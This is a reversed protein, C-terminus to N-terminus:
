VSDPHLYMIEAFGGWLSPRVQTSVAGYRLFPADGRSDTQSCLRYNGSRCRSCVGCPLFEEVAVRSGEAVGWKRAATDGISVIEGVIEHGLIIPGLKAGWPTREYFEWDTGCVGCAEVKLWADEDSVKPIPFTQIQTALPAVAVAARASTLGAPMQTYEM